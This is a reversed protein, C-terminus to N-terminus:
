DNLQLPFEKNWNIGDLQTNQFEFIRHSEDSFTIDLNSNFRWNDHSKSDIHISLICKDKFRGIVTSDILHLLYFGNNTGKSFKGYPESRGAISKDNCIIQTTLWTDNSKEGDITHFLISVDKITTPQSGTVYPKNASINLNISPIDVHTVFAAVSSNVNATSGVGEIYVVADHKPPYYLSVADYLARYSDANVDAPKVMDIHDKPIPYASGQCFRTASEEDVILQGYIPKKEYACRIVTSIQKRYIATKWDEDLSGLYLNIEHGNKNPFMSDLGPNNSFISALKAIDSGTQPTSYFFALPVKAAVDPNLFLYRLTILGGM